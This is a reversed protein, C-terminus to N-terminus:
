APTQNMKDAVMGALMTIFADAQVGSKANGSAFATAMMTEMENSKTWTNDTAIDRHATHQKNLADANAQMSSLVQLRVANVNTVHTQAEKVQAALSELLNDYTIKGNADWARSNALAALQYAEDVGIDQNNRNFVADREANATTRRSGSASAAEGTASDSDSDTNAPM